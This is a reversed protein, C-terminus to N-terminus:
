LMRPRQVYTAIDDGVRLALAALPGTPNYGANHTFVSAGM